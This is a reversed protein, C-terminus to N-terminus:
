IPNRSCSCGIVFSRNFRLLLRQHRRVSIYSYEAVYRGSPTIYTHYFSIYHLLFDDVFYQEKYEFIYADDNTFPNLIRYFLLVGSADPFDPQSRRSLTPDPSSAPTRQTTTQLELLYRASPLISSQNQPLNSNRGHTPQMPATTTEDRADFLLNPESRSLLLHLQNVTPVRFLDLGIDYNYSHLHHQNRESIDPKRRLSQTGISTGETDIYPKISVLHIWIISFWGSTEFCCHETRPPSIFLVCWVFVVWFSWAWRGSLHFRAQAKKIQFHSNDQWVM